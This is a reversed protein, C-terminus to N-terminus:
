QALRTVTRDSGITYFPTFNAFLFCCHFLLLMIQWHHDFSFDLPRSSMPQHCTLFPWCVKKNNKSQFFFFHSGKERFYVSISVVRIM